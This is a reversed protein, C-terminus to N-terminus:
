TRNNYTKEFKISLYDAQHVLVGTAESSGVSDRLSMKFRYIYNSKNQIDKLTVNTTDFFTGDNTRINISWKKQM